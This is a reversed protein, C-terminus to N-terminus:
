RFFRAALDNSAFNILRTLCKEGVAASRNAENVLGRGLEEESFWKGDIFIDFEVVNLQCVMYLSPGM